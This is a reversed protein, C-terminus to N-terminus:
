DQWDGTLKIALLNPSTWRVICKTNEFVDRGLLDAM